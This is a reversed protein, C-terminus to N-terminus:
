DMNTPPRRKWFQWWKPRRKERLKAWHAAFDPQLGRVFEVAKQCADVRDRLNPLDVELAPNAEMMALLHDLGRRLGEGLSRLCEPGYSMSSLSRPPYTASGATPRAATASSRRCGACRFAFHSCASALINPPTIGKPSHKPTAPWAYGETGCMRGDIALYVTNPM